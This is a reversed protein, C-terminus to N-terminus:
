LDTPVLRPKMCTSYAEESDLPTGYGFVRKCIFKKVDEKYDIKDQMQGPEVRVFYGGAVDKLAKAKWEPLQAMFNDLSLVFREEYGLRDILIYLCLQNYSLGPVMAQDHLIKPNVPKQPLSLCYNIHKDILLMKKSDELELATTSPNIDPFIKDGFFEKFCDYGYFENIFEDPLPISIRTDIVQKSNKRVIDEKMWQLQSITTTPKANPGLCKEIFTTDRSQTNFMIPLFVIVLFGVIFFSPLYKAFSPAAPFRRKIFIVPLFLYFTWLILFAFPYYLAHIPIPFRLINYFLYGLPFTIPAVSYNLLMAVQGSFSDQQLFNNTPDWSTLNANSLIVLIISLSFTILFEKKNDKFWSM